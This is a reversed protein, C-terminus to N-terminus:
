FVGIRIYNPGRHIAVREEREKKERGGRRKWEEERGEREGRGGIGKSKNRMCIMRWEASPSGRFNVATSIGRPASTSLSVFAWPRRSDAFFRPKKEKKAETDSAVTCTLM